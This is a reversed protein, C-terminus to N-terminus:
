APLVLAQLMGLLTDLLKPYFAYTAVMCAAGLEQRAEFFKGCIWLALGVLMPGLLIVGAVTIPATSKGVVKFREAMEPTFQPNQKMAQAMGRDIEADIVPEMATRGAFFLGIFVVVLVLLPLGFGASKRREFVVRPAYFIELLDEWFPVPSEATPATM